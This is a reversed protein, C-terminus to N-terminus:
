ALRPPVRAPLLRELAASVELLFGDRHKPAVLTLGMPLGGIMGGPVTLSPYGAIAAASAIPAGGGGAGRDGWVHDILSAPGGGTDFLVDVPQAFLAALGQRDADRDLTELVSRYAPDTLPGKADSLEFIDQGFFPMELDAHARNFAILDTLTRSPVLAPDLGALYENIAAKFEYQLAEWEPGGM